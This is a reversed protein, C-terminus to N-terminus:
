VPSHLVTILLCDCRFVFQRDFQKGYEAPLTVIKYGWFLKSLIFKKMLESLNHHFNPILVERGGKSLIMMLGCVIAIQLLKCCPFNNKLKM